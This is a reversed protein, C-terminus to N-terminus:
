KLKNVKNSTGFGTPGHIPELCRGFDPATDSCPHISRKRKIILPRASSAVCRDLGSDAENQRGSVHHRGATNICRRRSGSDFGPAVSCPSERGDHAQGFARNGLTNVSKKLPTLGHKLARQEGRKSGSAPKRNGEIQINNDNMAQESARITFPCRFFIYAILITVVSWECKIRAYEPRSSQFRLHALSNKTAFIWQQSINQSKGSHRVKDTHHQHSKAFSAM